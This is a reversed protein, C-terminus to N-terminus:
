QAWVSFEVAQGAPVAILPQMLDAPIEVPKYERDYYSRGLTLGASLLPLSATIWREKIFTVKGAAASTGLWGVFELGIGVYRLWSRRNYDQVYATLSPYSYVRINQHLAELVVQMGQVQMPQGAPSSVYVRVEQLGPIRSFSQPAFTITQAVCASVSAAFLVLIAARM